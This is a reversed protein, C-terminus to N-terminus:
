RRELLSRGWWDNTDRVGPLIAYVGSGTHVLYENLADNADLRTQMPVFQKRPDRQFAIFM